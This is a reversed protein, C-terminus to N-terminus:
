NRPLSEAEQEFTQIIQSSIYRLNPISQYDDFTRGLCLYGLKHM